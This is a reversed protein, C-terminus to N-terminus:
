ATSRTMLGAGNTISPPSTISRRRAGENKRRDCNTGQSEWTLVVGRETHKGRGRADDRWRSGLSVKGGIIRNIDHRGAEVMLPRCGDNFVGEACNTRFHDYVFLEATRDKEEFFTPYPLAATFTLAKDGRRNKELSDQARTLPGTITQEHLM